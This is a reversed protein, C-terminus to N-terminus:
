TMRQVVNTKSIWQHKVVAAMHLAVSGALAYCAYRHIDFWHQTIVEDDFPTEIYWLGFLLYGHPVMLFGSVLVLGTLYYLMKHTCKALAGQARSVGAIEAPSTRIAAWVCRVPFLVLLVTAISMNTISVIHWLHSDDIIHLAYGAVLTYLIASAFLWHM